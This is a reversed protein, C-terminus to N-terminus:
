DLIWYLACFIRRSSWWISNTMAPIPTYVLDNWQKQNSNILDEMQPPLQQWIPAEGQGKREWNARVREGTKKSDPLERWLLRDNKLAKQAQVDPNEGAMGQKPSADVTM